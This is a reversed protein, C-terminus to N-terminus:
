ARELARTACEIAEIATRCHRLADELSRMVDPHPDAQVTAGLRRRRAEAVALVTEPIPDVALESRLLGACVDFQHEAEEYRGLETALRMVMRHADERYPERRALTHACLLAREADGAERLPDIARELCRNVARSLRIRTSIVWDHYCGSVFEEDDLRVLEPWCDQPGVERDDVLAAIRRADVNLDPDLELHGASWSAVINSDRGDLVNRLRWLATNLRRRGRSPEVEPWLAETVRDRHRAAGSELVLYALLPQVSLPIPQTTGNREVVPAGFLRVRVEGM